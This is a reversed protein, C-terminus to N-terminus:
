VARKRTKGGRVKVTTTSQEFAAIKRNLFKVNKRKTIDSRRAEIKEEHLLNNSSDYFRVWNDVEVKVNGEVVWYNGKTSQASASTLITMATGALAIMWKMKANM